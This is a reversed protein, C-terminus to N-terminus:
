KANSAHQYSREDMRQALKEWLSVKQERLIPQGCFVHYNVKKAYTLMRWLGALSMAIGAIVLGLGYYLPPGWMFLLTCVVNLVFFVASILLAGLRDNFYLQVLGISSGIAYASYGVCMLQFMTIMETTFGLYSLAYRMLVSYFVMFIVQVQALRFVEQNFTVAMDEQALRIDPLTGGSTIAAFYQRYKRYFNVEVSVVFNISTPISVLFAMFAAADHTPAQRFPGIVRGGLPGFWMLILHVLAGAQSLFGTLILDPTQAFWRIFAFLSGNGLPFYLSLVESFGVLMLGYGIVIAFLLALVADMQLLLFVFGLALAVAVGTFFVWLIRKYDKAATVYAMQLWVLTAEMFLVWDLVRVVAPIEPARMLFLAYVIGGPVMLTVAGGYLSPLVRDSMDQYLCDAVYRSLFMRMLSSLLLSWLLAYVLLSVLMESHERSGGFRQALWQAGLLLVVALIMTGASVVSAYAYARIRRIMGRGVFLKRLEFGIGAM